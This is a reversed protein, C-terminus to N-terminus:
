YCCILIISHNIIMVTESENSM